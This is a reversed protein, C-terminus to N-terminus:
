AILRRTNTSPNDTLEEGELRQVTSPVIAKGLRPELNAHVKHCWFSFEDEKLDRKIYNITKHVWQVNGYEYGKDSDIRDLSATFKSYDPNCKRLDSSLNIPVGSLACMGGQHEFLKWAYDITISFPIDRRKAGRVIAQWFTKTIGGVGQHPRKAFFKNPHNKITELSSCSKCCTTRGSDVHDKRRTGEYGCSCRVKYYTRIDTFQELVEWM